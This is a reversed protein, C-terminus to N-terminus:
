EENAQSTDDLEQFYLFGAYLFYPNVKQFNQKEDDEAIEKMMEKFIPQLINQYKTFIEKNVFQFLLYNYNELLDKQVDSNKSLHKLDRNLERSLISQFLYQNGIRSERSLNASKKFKNSFDFLNQLNSLSLSYIGNELKLIEYNQLKIILKELDEPEVSKIVKRIDELTMERKLLFEAIILSTERNMLVSQWKEILDGIAILDKISIDIEDENESNITEQTM